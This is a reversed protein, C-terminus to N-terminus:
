RSVERRTTYGGIDVTRGSCSLKIEEAFNHGVKRKGETGREVKGCVKATVLIM